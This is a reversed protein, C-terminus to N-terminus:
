MQWESTIIDMLQDNELVDAVGNLTIGENAAFTSLALAIQNINTGTLHHGDSLEFREITNTTGQEKITLNDGEGYNIILDAGNMFIAIDSASVENGFLISDNGTTDSITDKGDLKNFLFSDDGAGGKLNDSGAGGIIVDNGISGTVNDNGLGTTIYDIQTLTTNSLDILNNYDNGAIM